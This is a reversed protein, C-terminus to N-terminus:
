YQTMSRHLPPASDARPLYYRPEQGRVTKKSVAIEYIARVSIDGAVDQGPSTAGKALGAPDLLLRATCHVACGGLEAGAGREGTVRKLYWTTSPAMVSYKFTRDDFATLRVRM